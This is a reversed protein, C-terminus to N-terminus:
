IEETAKFVLKVDIGLLYHMMKFRLEADRTVVAKSGKVDEVIERGGKEYVFDATYCVGIYSRRKVVKDKTKLHVVRDEYEDPFLEFRVQRRLNHIVGSRELGSLFIYRDREKESAFKIGMYECCRANFKNGKLRGAFPSFINHRRQAM